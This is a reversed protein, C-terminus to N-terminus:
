ELLYWSYDFIDSVAFIDPMHQMDKVFPASTAGKRKGGKEHGM